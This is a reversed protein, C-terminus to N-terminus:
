DIQVIKPNAFLLANDVAQTSSHILALHAPVRTRWRTREIPLREASWIIAPTAVGWLLLFVIQELVPARVAVRDGSARVLILSLVVVYLIASLWLAVIVRGATARYSTSM